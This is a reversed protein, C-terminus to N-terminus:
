PTELLLERLHKTERRRHEGRLVVVHHGAGVVCCERCCAQHATGATHQRHLVLCQGGDGVPAASVEM